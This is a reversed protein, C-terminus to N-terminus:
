SRGAPWMAPNIASGLRGEPGTAISSPTWWRQWRERRGDAPGPVERDEAGAAAPERADGQLPAGAGRVAAEALLVACGAGARGPACAGERRAHREDRRPAGTDQEPLGRDRAPGPPRLRGQLQQGSPPEEPPLLHDQDSQRPRCPALGQGGDPPARQGARGRLLGEPQGRGRHSPRRDGRRPSSSPMSMWTHPYARAAPPGPAPPTPPSSSVCTRGPGGCLPIRWHTSVNGNEHRCRRACSPGNIPRSVRM